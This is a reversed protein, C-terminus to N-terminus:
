RGCLWRVPDLDDVVREKPFSAQRLRDRASRQAASTIAWGIRTTKLCNPARCWLPHMEVRVPRLLAPWRVIRTKMIQSRVYKNACFDNSLSAFDQVVNLTKRRM